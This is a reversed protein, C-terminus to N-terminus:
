WIHIRINTIIYLMGAVVCGQHNTGKDIIDAHLIEFYSISWSVVKLEFICRYIAEQVLGVM